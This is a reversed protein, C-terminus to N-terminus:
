HVNQDERHPNKHAKIPAERKQELEAQIAQFESAWECVEEEKLDGILTTIINIVQKERALGILTNAVEAALAKVQEKDYPATIEPYKGPM